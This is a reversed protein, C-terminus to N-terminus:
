TSILGSGTGTTGLDIRLKRRSAQDRISGLANSTVDEPSALPAVEEVPPAVVPAAIKPAKSSCM